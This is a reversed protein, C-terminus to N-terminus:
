PEIYSLVNIEGRILNSDFVFFFQGLNKKIPTPIACFCIVNNELFLLSFSSSSTYYFIIIPRNMHLQRGASVFIYPQVKGTRDSQYVHKEREREREESEPRLTCYM